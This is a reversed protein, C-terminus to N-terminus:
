SSDPYELSQGSLRPVIWVSSGDTPPATCVCEVALALM